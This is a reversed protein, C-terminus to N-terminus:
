RHNTPNNNDCMYNYFFSVAKCVKRIYIYHDNIICVIKVFMM